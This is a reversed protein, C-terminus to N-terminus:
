ARVWWAGPEQGAVALWREGDPGEDPSPLAPGLRSFQAHAAADLHVLAEALQAGAGALRLVRRVSQLDDRGRAIALGGRTDLEGAGGLREALVEARRVAEHELRSVAVGSLAGAWERVGATPSTAGAEERSWLRALLGAGAAREVDGPAAALASSAAALWPAAGSAASWAGVAPAPLPAPAAGPPELEALADAQPLALLEVVGDHAHVAWHAGLDDVIKVLVRGARADFGVLEGDGVPVGARVEVVAEAALALHASGDQPVYVQMEAHADFAPRWVNFVTLLAALTARTSGEPPAAAGLVVQATVRLETDDDFGLLTGVSPEHSM